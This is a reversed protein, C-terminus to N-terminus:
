VVRHEDEGTELLNLLTKVAMDSSRKLYGVSNYAASSNSAYWQRPSAGSFLEADKVIDFAARISGSKVAESMDKENVIGHHSISVVLADKKIMKLKSADIFNSGAEDGLAVFIIDSSKLLAELEMYKYKVDKQQRNWYVVEKAGLGSMMDAYQKGIHGLGIVGVQLDPLSTITHFKETGQPGLSFLDRQMALTATLAWEAVEYVNAYPTTGIKIGRAKAQEWAPIHGIYGTGTFIIAKLKTGAEIVPQTVHEVGGIIYGIKGKVAECLEAETADPKDLREVEYGAAELQKIHVDFIFLSDTVLIKKM